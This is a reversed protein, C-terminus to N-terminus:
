FYNQTSKGNHLFRHPLSGIWDRMATKAANKAATDYLPNGIIEALGRMAEKETELEEPAPLFDWLTKTKSPIAREFCKRVEEIFFSPLCPREETDVLPYTLYVKERSRTLAMYFFYREGAIRFAREELVIGKENM